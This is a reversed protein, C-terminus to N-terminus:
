DKDPGSPPDSEYDHMEIVERVQGDSSFQVWLIRLDAIERWPYEWVDRQMRSMHVSRFPPGLLERVEKAQAGSAVKAINQRTLRQEIGRLVGDSGVTAVYMERGYPLRSYYLLTDGNPRSLVDAPRGMTAEVDARTSKGPLLNSGSFSACGALLALGILMGATRIM